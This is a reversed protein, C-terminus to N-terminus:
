ARGERRHSRGSANLQERLLKVDSEDAMPQVKHSFTSGMMSASDAQVEDIYSRWVCSDEIAAAIM